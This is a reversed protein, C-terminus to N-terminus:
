GNVPTASPVAKQPLLMPLGTLACRGDQDEWAQCLFDYFAETSSFGFLEKNKVVREVTQGNANGVRNIVSQALGIMAAKLDGPRQLGQQRMQEIVKQNISLQDVDNCIRIKIGLLEQYTVFVFM